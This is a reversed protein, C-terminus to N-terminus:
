TRRPLFRGTRAQYGIYAPGHQRRLHPEEVLVVQGVIGTALAALGVGTLLSPVALASGVAFTLMATFIPDRVRGFLGTTM